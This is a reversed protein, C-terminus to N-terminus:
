WRGKLPQSSRMFRKVVLSFLVQQLGFQSAVAVIVAAVKPASFGDIILQEAAGNHTVSLGVAGCAAAFVAVARKATASREPTLWPVWAARTAYEILVMTVAAIGGMQAIYGLLQTLGGAILNTLLSDLM